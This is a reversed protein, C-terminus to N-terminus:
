HNLGIKEIRHSHKLGGEKQVLAIHDESPSDHGLEISMGQM